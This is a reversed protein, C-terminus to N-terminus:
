ARGVNSEGRRVEVVEVRVLSKLIMMPISDRQMMMIHYMHLLYAFLDDDHTDDNDGVPPCPIHMASELNADALLIIGHQTGLQQEWAAVYSDLFKSVKWHSLFQITWFLSCLFQGPDKRFKNKDINEGFFYEM